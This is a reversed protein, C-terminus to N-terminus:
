STYYIFWVILETVYWRNILFNLWEVSEHQNLARKRHVHLECQRVYRETLSLVRTKWVFFTAFIVVFVWFFSFQFWGLIWSIGMAAAVFLYVCLQENERKCVLRKEDSFLNINRSEGNSVASMEQENSSQRM